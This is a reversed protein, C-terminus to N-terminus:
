RFLEKYEAVVVDAMGEDIAQRLENTYISVLHSGLRNLTSDDFVKQNDMEKLIKAFEFKETLVSTENLAKTLLSNWKELYNDRIEEESLLGDHLTYTAEEQLVDEVPEEVTQTNVPRRREQGTEAMSQLSNEYYMGWLDAFGEDDLRGQKNLEHYLNLCNIETIDNVDLYAGQMFKNVLTAVETGKLGSQALAYKKSKELGSRVTYSMGYVAESAKKITVYNNAYEAIDEILSPELKPNRQVYEYIEKILPTELNAEQEPEQVAEQTTETVTLLTDVSLDDLGGVISDVIDLSALELTTSAHYIINKSLIYTDNPEGFPLHAKIKPNRNSFLTKFGEAVNEHEPNYKVKIIDNGSMELQLPLKNNDIVAQLTKLLQKSTIEVRQVM